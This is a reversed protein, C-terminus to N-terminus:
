EEDKEKIKRRGDEEPMYMHLHTHILLLSFTKVDLFQPKLTVDAVRGTVMSVRKGAGKLLEGAKLILILSLM